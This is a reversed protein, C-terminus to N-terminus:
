LKFHCDGDEFCLSCRDPSRDFPVVGSTSPLTSPSVDLFEVTLKWYYSLVLSIRVSGVRM